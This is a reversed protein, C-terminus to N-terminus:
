GGKNPCSTRGCYFNASGGLKEDNYGQKGRNPECEPSSLCAQYGLNVCAGGWYPVVPDGGFEPRRYAVRIKSRRFAESASPDDTLRVSAGFMTGGAKVCLKNPADYWAYRCLSDYACRKVCSEYSCDFDRYEIAPGFPVRVVLECLAPDPAIEVFEFLRADVMDLAASDSACPYRVM